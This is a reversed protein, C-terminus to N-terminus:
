QPCKAQGRRSNRELTNRKQNGNRAVTDATSIIITIVIDLSGKRLCAVVQLIERTRSHRSSPKGRSCLSYPVQSRSGHRWRAMLASQPKTDECQGNNKVPELLSARLSGNRHVSTRVATAFVEETWALKTGLTKEKGPLGWRNEPIVKVSGRTNKRITENM